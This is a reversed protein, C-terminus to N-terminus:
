RQTSSLSHGFICFIFMLKVAIKSQRYSLLQNRFIQWYILFGKRFLSRKKQLYISCQWSSFRDLIILFWTKQHGTFGPKASIVRNRSRDELGQLEFSGIKGWQISQCQFGFCGSLEHSFAECNAQAIFFESLYYVPELCRGTSM